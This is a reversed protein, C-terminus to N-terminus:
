ILTLTISSIGNTVTGTGALTANGALGCLGGSLPIGAREDARLGTVRGGSVGFNFYAPSTITSAALCEISEGTPRVRASLGIVDVRLGTINPLSGEFSVYSVTWPLSANLVTVTGGTCSRVEVFIIRGVTGSKFMPNSLPGELTTACEITHGAAIVRLASFRAVFTTESVSLMNASAAGVALGLGVTAMLAVLPSKGLRVHM